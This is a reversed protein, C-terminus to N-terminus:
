PAGPMDPNCYTVPVGRVSSCSDVPVAVAVQGDPRFTIPPPKVEVTGLPLVAVGANICTKLEALLPVVLQLTLAVLAATPLPLRLRVRVAYVM